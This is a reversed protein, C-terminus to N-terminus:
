PCVPPSTLAPATIMEGLVNPIAPAPPSDPSDTMDPDAWYNGSVDQTVVSFNQVAFPTNDFLATDRVLVAAGAGETVIGGMGRCHAIRGCSLAVRANSRVYMGAQGAHIIAVHELTPAADSATLGYTARDIVAHQLRVSANSGAVIGGWSGAQAAPSEPLFLVPADASGLVLLSGGEVALLAGPAFQLHVGPEVYLTGGKAITTVGQVTYPSHDETLRMARTILGGFQQPAMDAAALAKDPIPTTRRPRPRESANGAEDVAVVYARVPEFNALGDVTASLDGSSLIRSFDMANGRAMYVDYHSVDPSPSAKWTLAVAGNLPEARLGLPAMPPRADIRIRRTGAFANAVGGSPRILYGRPLLPGTLDGTDVTISGEYVERTNLLSRAVDEQEPTLPSDAEAMRTRLAALAQAAAGSQMAQPLPPLRVGTRYGPLDVYAECDPDGVLRFRLENGARFYEGETMLAFFDLHPPPPVRRQLSEPLSTELTSIIERFLDDTKRDFQEDRINWASAIASIALGVPNLSFGGGFERSIHRARWLLKGTALDTLRVECGVAVQSVVGVFVREFATVEGSIVADVGLIARLKQPDHELMTQLADGSLGANALLRDTEHLELDSFPLSSVHNYLGRRVLDTPSYGEPVSGWRTANGAFPLVAVSRPAHDRLADTVEYEGNFMNFADSTMVLTDSRRVGGACGGLVLLLAALATLLIPIRHRALGHHRQM